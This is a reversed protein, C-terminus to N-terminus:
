RVKKTEPAPTSNAAPAHQFSVIAEPLILKGDLREYMRFGVQGNAAYLENLRQMVRGQRDAIWYYSFDGFLISRADAGIEPMFDSIAVPRSLIRDPQEAQLGPQWLYQGNADKLKRIEKATSDHLLWTASQRYPRKLAHFLDLLDDAALSVGGVKGQTADKVVGTPKGNGDGNVLAAEEAFGFRRAYADSVYADLNFVSDHLLEESIKMITGLKYASLTMQGFSSDSEVYTANEALWTATGFDAEVPIETPHATTIITCLSRMVNFSLLKQILTREFDTPILYGGATNTQTVLTRVEPSMLLRIQEADLSNRDQRIAQWFAERYEATEALKKNRREEQPQASPDLVTRRTSQQLDSEMGQLREEREIIKARRDVDEMIREYQQEEEPRLDRNEKEAQDLLERAQAILKAREQRMEVTKM